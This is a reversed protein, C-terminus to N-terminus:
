QLIPTRTGAPAPIKRKAMADLGARPGVSDRIWLSVEYDRSTKKFLIKIIM